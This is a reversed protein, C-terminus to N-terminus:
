PMLNVAREATARSVQTPKTYMAVIYNIRELTDKGQMDGSFTERNAIEKARAEDVEGEGMENLLSDMEEKIIQKLTEKTLKM